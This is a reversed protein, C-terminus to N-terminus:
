NLRITWHPDVSLWERDAPSVSRRGCVAIKELVRDICGVDHLSFSLFNFAKRQTRLRSVIGADRHYRACQRLARTGIPLDGNVTLENALEFSTVRHVHAQDNQADITLLLYVSTVYAFSLPTEVLVGFHHRDGVVIRSGGKGQTLHVIAKQEHLNPAGKGLRLILFYNM